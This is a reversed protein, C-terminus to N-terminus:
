VEPIEDDEDEPEFECFRVEKIEPVFAVCDNANEAVATANTEPDVEDTEVDVGAEDCVNAPLSGECGTAPLETLAVNDDDVREVSGQTSYGRSIQNPDKKGQVSLDM